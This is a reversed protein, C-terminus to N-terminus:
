RAIVGGVGGVGGGGAGGVGTGGGAGAGGGQSLGGGGMSGTNNSTDIASANQLASAAQYLDSAFSFSAANGAKDGKDKGDDLMYMLVLEKITGDSLLDITKAPVGEGGSASSGVIENIQQYKESADAGGTASTDGTSSTNMPTIVPAAGGMSAVNM